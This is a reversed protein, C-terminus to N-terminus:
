LFGKVLNTSSPVYMELWRPSGKFELLSHCWALAILVVTLTAWPPASIRWGTSLPSPSWGRPLLVDALVLPWYHWNKLIAFTFTNITLAAGLLIYASHLWTWVHLFRTITTIYWRLKKQIKRLIKPQSRSILVAGLGDGSTAGDWNLANVCKKDRNDCKKTSKWSKRVKLVIKSPPLVIKSPPLVVKSPLLVM